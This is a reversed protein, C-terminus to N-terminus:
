AEVRDGPRLGVGIRGVGTPQQGGGVGERGAGAGVAVDITIVLEGLLGANGAVLLVVVVRHTGYVVDLGAQGQGAFGAVVGHGPSVAFEIVRLGAPGQGTRVRHRRSVARVAM